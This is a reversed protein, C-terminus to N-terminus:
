KEIPIILVAKGVYDKKFLIHAGTGFGTVEGQHIERAKIETGVRIKLVRNKAM